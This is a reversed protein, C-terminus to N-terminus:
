KLLKEYAKIQKQTVDWVNGAAESLYTKYWEATWEIAQDVNLKTEWGLLTKAKSCDLKLLGAEHPHDGDDLCWQPRWGPIEDWFSTFTDVINGVTQTDKSAPGFNWAGSFQSGNKVLNRALLMYGWLPELVHQWPRSAQPYRLRVTERRSFSRVMDPILRNKAFDGGGIVNGSRASAIATGGSEAASDASFFSRVYAATILESCGKSSSYPDYGGMPDSERYGWLWNQNEYCKDSTVNIVAKVNGHHRVAELLNVTGMVNTAYTEVPERYSQKVLAQAALHIIIEPQFDQIAKNIVASNRIDGGLSLISSEVGALNFFINKDSLPLSLGCVEAGM